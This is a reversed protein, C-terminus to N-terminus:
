ITVLRLFRNILKTELDVVIHSSGSLKIDRILGIWNTINSSIIRFHFHIKNDHLENGAFRVLEEIRSPEQFIVTMLTWKYHQTLDFVATFLRHIPPHINLEFNNKMDKTQEVDGTNPKISIYPIDLSNSIIKIIEFVKSNGITLM